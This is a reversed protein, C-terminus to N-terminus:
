NSNSNSPGPLVHVLQGFNTGVGSNKNPYFVGKYLSSPVDRQRAVGEGTEFHIPAREIAVSGCGHVYCLTELAKHIARTKGETRHM